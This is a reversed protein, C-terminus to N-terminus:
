PLFSQPPRPTQAMVRRAVPVGERRRVVADALCKAWPSPSVRFPTETTCTSVVTGTDYRHTLYLLMKVKSLRRWRAGFWGLGVRVMDDTFGSCASIAASAAKIPRSRVRESSSFRM